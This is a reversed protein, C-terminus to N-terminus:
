LCINNHYILCPSLSIVSDFCGVAPRRFFSTASSVSASHSIMFTTQSFSGQAAPVTWSAQGRALVPGIGRDLGGHVAHHFLSEQLDVPNAVQLEEPRAEALHLGPPPLEALHEARAKLPARVGWPALEQDLMLAQRFFLGGPQALEHFLGVPLFSHIWRMRSRSIWGHILDDVVTTVAKFRCRRPM